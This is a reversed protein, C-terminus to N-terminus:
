NRADALEQEIKKNWDENRRDLEDALERLNHATLMGHGTDFYYFGDVDLHLAYGLAEVVRSM